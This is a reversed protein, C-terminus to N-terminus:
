NLSYMLMPVTFLILLESIGHWCTSRYEKKITNLDERLAVRVADGLKSGKDYTDCNRLEKLENIKKVLPEKHIYTNLLLERKIKQERDGYGSDDHRYTNTNRDWRCCSHLTDLTYQYTKIEKYKECLSHISHVMDYFLVSAIVWMGVKIRNLDIIHAATATGTTEVAFSNNTNVISISALVILIGYHRIKVWLVGKFNNKKM